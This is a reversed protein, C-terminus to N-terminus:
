AGAARAGADTPVITHGLRKAIDFGAGDSGTKPLSQGGTALVVAAARCTAAIRSSAFDGNASTARSTSCAVAPRRADRRRAGTERLLADLVDRSRNTDPFLKGGAEEHLSVGIERFFAVTDRSRFRACCAASSRRADAGSIANPSSAREHRQLAIRRQRPNERGAKQRRRPARGLPRTPAARSSPPRSAPPAPASSRWTAPSLFHPCASDAPRPAPRTIIAGLQRHAAIDSYLLEGAPLRRLELIRRHGSARCSIDVVDHRLQDVPRMRRAIRSAAAATSTTRRRSTSDSLNEIEGTM